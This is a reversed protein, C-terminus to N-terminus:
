DKRAFVFLYVNEQVNTVNGALQGCIQYYIKLVASGFFTDPKQKHSESFLQTM